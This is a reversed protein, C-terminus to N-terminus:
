GILRRLQDVTHATEWRSLGSAGHAGWSVGIGRVGAADAMDMDFTTDGVMVADDRSVGARRLVELLMDPHPKPNPVADHGIIQDFHATIGARELSREAGLQMKSTAVAKLTDLGELLELIGPFLRTHRRDFEVYRDKYTQVLPAIPGVTLTEFMHVLPLGIMDAVAKDQPAPVGHDLCAAEFTRVIAERSDSLTGDLDFVVLRPM